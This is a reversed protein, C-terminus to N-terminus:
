EDPPSMNQQSSKEACERTGFVDIVVKGERDLREAVLEAEQVPCELIEHGGDVVVLLYVTESMRM